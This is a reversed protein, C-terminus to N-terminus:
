HGGTSIRVASIEKGGGPVRKWGHRGIVLHDLLRVEVADLALAVRRTIVRDSESPTPDGSPHNHVLIVAAANLELARRAVQRPYVPAADRCGRGFTEMRVLRRGSDLFVARFEEVDLWAMEAHLMGALQEPGEIPMHDRVPQDLVARISDRLLNMVAVGNQDLGLQRLREESTALVSGLSGREAMLREAVKPTSNGMALLRMLLWHDRSRVAQQPQYEPQTAM